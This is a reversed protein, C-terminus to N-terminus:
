EFVLLHRSLQILVTWNYTSILHIAKSHSTPILMLWLIFDYQHCKSCVTYYQTTCLIWFTNLLICLLLPMITWPHHVPPQHILLLKTRHGISRHHGAAGGGLLDLDLQMAHCQMANNCQLQNYQMPQEGISGAGTANCSWIVQWGTSSSALAHTVHHWEWKTMMLLCVQETQSKVFSWHKSSEM